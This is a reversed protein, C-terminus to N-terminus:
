LSSIMEGGENRPGIWSLKEEGGFIGTSFGSQSVLLQVHHSEEPDEIRFRVPVENLFPIMDDAVINIRDRGNMVVRNAFYDGVYFLWEYVGREKGKIWKVAAPLSRGDKTTLFETILERKTSRRTPSSLHYLQVRMDGAPRNRTADLVQCTLVGRENQSEELDIIQMPLQCETKQVRSM